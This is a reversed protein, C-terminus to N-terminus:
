QRPGFIASGIRVHTAGEEIAVEFDGSMGMSLATCGLHAYKEALRSLKRFQGRFVEPEPSPAALTMLGKLELNALASTQEILEGAEGEGVGFKTDEGSVNVQVFCPLVRGCSAAHRNLTEALRRSDLAHFSDAYLAVQRAKNRQLHGIMHWRCSGKPIKPLKSMLEQVKNEGFDELGAEIAAAILSAPFTKTVGILTVEDRSRGSQHCAQTIREEVQQLRARIAVVHGASVSM